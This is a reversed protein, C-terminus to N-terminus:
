FTLPIFSVIIMMPTVKHQNKNYLSQNIDQIKYQLSLALCNLPFNM